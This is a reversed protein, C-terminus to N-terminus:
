NTNGSNRLEELLGEVAVGEPTIDGHTVPPGLRSDQELAFPSTETRDAAVADAPTRPHPKDYAAWPNDDLGSQNHKPKKTNFIGM